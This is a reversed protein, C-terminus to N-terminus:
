ILSSSMPPAQSVYPLSTRLRPSVRLGLRLSYSLILICRLQISTRQSVTYVEPYAVPPPSNRVCYHIESNWLIHHKRIHQPVTLQDDLTTAYDTYM